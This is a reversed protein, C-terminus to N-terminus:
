MLIDKAALNALHSSGYKDELYEYFTEEVNLYRVSADTQFQLDAIAKRILVDGM